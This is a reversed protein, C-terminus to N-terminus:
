HMRVTKLVVSGTKLFLLTQKDVNVAPVWFSDQGRHWFTQGLLLYASALQAPCSQPCFAGQIAM